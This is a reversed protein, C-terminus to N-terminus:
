KEVSVSEALTWVTGLHPHQGEEFKFVDSLARHVEQSVVTQGGEAEVALDVVTEVPEGWVDYIFNRLGVVGAAAPGSAVGVSLGLDADHKRNFFAVQKHLTQAFTVARKAHDLRPVNVGCVALYNAGLTKVKEVGHAQAVEDFLSILENLLTITAEADRAQTFEAFGLLDAYLASVDPYRDVIQTEGEGLRKAVRAPLLNFLLAESRRNEEKQAQVEGRLGKVVENLSTALQGLEDKSGVPIADAEGRAIADAGAVFTDIPRTFMRAVIM